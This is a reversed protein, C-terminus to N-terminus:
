RVAPQDTPPRSPTKTPYLSDTHLKTGTVSQILEWAEKTQKMKMLFKFHSLQEPNAIEYFKFVEMMGINGAYSAEKVNQTM